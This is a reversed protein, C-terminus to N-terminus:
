WWESRVPNFHGGSVSASTIIAFAIGFGFALGVNLLGGFVAANPQTTMPAAADIISFFQTATAAVGPLVYFFVGTAEALMERLIKPRKREYALRSASAPPARVIKRQYHKQTAETVGLEMEGTRQRRLDDDSM